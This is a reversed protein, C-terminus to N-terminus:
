DTQAETTVINDDITAYADYEYHGLEDCDIQQVWESLPLDDAAAAEVEVDDENETVNVGQASLIGMHHFCKHTTRDTVRRWTKEICRIADLLIVAHDQKKQIREIM